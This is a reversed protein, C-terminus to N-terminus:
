PFYFVGGDDDFGYSDGSYDSLHGYDDDSAGFGWHHDRYDTDSDDTGFIPPDFVIGADAFYEKAQDILAQTSESGVPVFWDAAGVSQLNPLRQEKNCARGLEVLLPLIFNVSQGPDNILLAELSPPFIDALAAYDPRRRNELHNPLDADSESDAVSVGYINLPASGVLLVGSIELM